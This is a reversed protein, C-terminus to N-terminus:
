TLGKRALDALHEDYLKEAIPISKRYWRDRGTKCGGFLLVAARSPDFAYLIRYPLGAHQVRLERMHRYKSGRINSTYPYGLTPGRRRLLRIVFTISDQEGASLGRWWLDFEDTFAVDFM